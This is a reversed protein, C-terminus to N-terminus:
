CNTKYLVYFIFKITWRFAGSTSSGEANLCFKGGTNSVDDTPTWDMNVKFYKNAFNQFPLPLGQDSEICENFTNTDTNTLLAIAAATGSFNGTPGIPTIQIAVGRVKMTLFLKAYTKWDPCYQIADGFPIYNGNNVVFKMNSGAYEVTTAFSLKAYHFSKISKYFLAKRGKWYNNKRTVAKVM